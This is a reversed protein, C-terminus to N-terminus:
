EFRLLKSNVLGLRHSGLETPTGQEKHKVYYFKLSYAVKDKDTAAVKLKIFEALDVMKVLTYEGKVNHTYIKLAISGLSKQDLKVDEAWADDTQLLAGLGAGLAGVAAALKLTDRRTVDNPNRGDDNAM